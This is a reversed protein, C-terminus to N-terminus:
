QVDDRSTDGATCWYNTFALGYTVKSYKYKDITKEGNWERM